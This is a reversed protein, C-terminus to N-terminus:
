DVNSIKLNSNIKCSETSIFPIFNALYNVFQAMHQFDIYEPDDYPTHLYSENNVNTMCTHAPIGTSDTKATKAFSINDSLYFYYSKEDPVPVIKWDTTNNYQTIIDSLNSMEEGTMFFHNHNVTRGVMDFNLNLAIKSPEILMSKCFHSSGHFGHEEGSFAVFILAREGRYNCNILKQALAIIFATGSANDDAGNCISDTTKELTGIHDYHASIIIYENPSDTKGYLVGIINREAINYYTYNQVFSSDKLLPKLGMHKFKQSIWTAAKKMEISGNARGKMSDSALYYIWHTLSDVTAQDSRNIPKSKCQMYLFVSSIAFIWSIFRFTRKMHKYNKLKLNFTVKRQSQIDSQLM